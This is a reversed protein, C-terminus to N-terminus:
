CVSAYGPAKLYIYAMDMNKIRSRARPWNARLWSADLPLDLGGNSIELPLKDIYNGVVLVLTAQTVTVKEGQGDRFDLHLLTPEALLARTGALFCVCSLISCAGIFKLLNLFNTKM